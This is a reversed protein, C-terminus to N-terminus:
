MTKSDDSNQIFIITQCFLVILTLNDFEELM